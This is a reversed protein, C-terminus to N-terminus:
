SPRKKFTTIVLAVAALLTVQFGFTIQSIVKRALVGPDPMSLAQQASFQGFLGGLGNMLGNTSSQLDEFFSKAKMYMLFPLCSVVLLPLLNLFNKRPFSLWPTVWPVFMVLLGVVRLFTFSYGIGNMGIDAGLLQDITVSFGTNVFPIKQNFYFASFFFYSIEMAAIVVLSPLTMLEIQLKVYPKLNDSFGEGKDMLGKGLTHLREQALTERSITTIDTAVGGTGETFEVTQNVSPAM